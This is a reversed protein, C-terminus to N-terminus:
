ISGHENLGYGWLWKKIYIPEDSNHCLESVNSTNKLERIPIIKAM